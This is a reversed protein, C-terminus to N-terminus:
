ADPDAALSLRHVSSYTNPEYRQYLIRSTGLSRIADPGSIRPDIDLDADTTGEFTENHFGVALTISDIKASVTQLKEIDRRMGGCINSYVTVPIPCNKFYM